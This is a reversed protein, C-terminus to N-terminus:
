VINWRSVCGVTDIMVLSAVVGTFIKTYLQGHSMRRRAPFKGDHLLEEPDTEDRGSADHYARASVVYAAGGAKVFFIPVVLTM